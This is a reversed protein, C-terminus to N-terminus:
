VGPHQAITVLGDRTVHAPTPRDTVTVAVVADPPARRHKVHLGWGGRWASVCVMQRTAFGMGVATTPVHLMKARQAPGTRRVSVCVMQVM